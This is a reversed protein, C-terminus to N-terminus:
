HTGSLDTPHVANIDGLITEIPADTLEVFPVGLVSLITKIHSHAQLAAAANQYRGEQRYARSEPWPLFYDLNDFQNHYEEVMSQFSPPERLGYYSALLLPSDMIAYDVKGVLRKLRLYQVGFVYPQCALTHHSQEWVLDKAFEAVLECSLGATKMRHFLGAALTSKGCGPGGYLNIVRM